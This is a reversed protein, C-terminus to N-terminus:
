RRHDGGPPLPCPACHQAGDHDKRLRDALLIEGPGIDIGVLINNVETDWSGYLIATDEYAKISVNKRPDLQAGFKVTKKYLTSLKM